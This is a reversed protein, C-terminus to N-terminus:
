RSQLLLALEYVSNKKAGTIEVALKVAQKLPLDALLCQLVQKLDFSSREVEERCGEVIIVFEGRQHNAEAQLWDFLVQLSGQQSQEFQKTLERAIFAQRDAGFITVMAGMTQIIRHPSEYFILTSSETALTQLQESRAKAKASLFGRFLFQDSPLGAISLAAIAACCGPVALVEIGQQRVVQVLRYGPDSILPTGADSILGVCEGDSLRKVLTQAVQAENHDHLALMPTNILFHKLLKGSHRTDEVAVIDVQQLIEIARPSMDALNGIPTAVIFLKGQITSNMQMERRCYNNEIENNTM